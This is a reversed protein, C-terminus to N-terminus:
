STSPRSVCACGTFCSLVRSVRAAAAFVVCMGSGAPLTGVEAWVFSGPVDDGREGFEGFSRKTM